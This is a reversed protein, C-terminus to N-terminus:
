IHFRFYSIFSGRHFLVLSMSMSFLSTTALDATVYIHTHTHTLQKTMDLERCGWPSYGVPSRQGHFEGPLFIATGKELPDEQALSQVWTEQMKPLNKEDSGGPFHIYM